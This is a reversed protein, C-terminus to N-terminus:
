AAPGEGNAIYAAIRLRGGGPMADLANSVIELIAQELQMPDVRVPPLTAPVALELDVHQERIPTAVAPILAIFPAIYVTTRIYDHTEENMIPRRIAAYRFGYSTREIQFRPAKDTSPRLWTAETAKAGDVQAPVM